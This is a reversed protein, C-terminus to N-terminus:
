QLSYNVTKVEDPNLSEIPLDRIIMYKSATTDMNKVVIGMENIDRNDVSSMNTFTRSVTVQM